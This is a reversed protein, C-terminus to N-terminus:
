AAAPPPLLITRICRFCCWSTMRARSGAGAIASETSPHWYRMAVITRASIHNRLAVELAKAQRETLRRIPSGGGIEAYHERVKKSRTTSILKALPKRALFSGPFNIIDPDRFLNYLFPEVAAQSDPGGLQFLVVAYRRPAAM